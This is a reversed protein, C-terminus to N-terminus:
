SLPWDAEQGDSQFPSGRWPSPRSPWESEPSRGDSFSCTLSGRRGEKVRFSTRPKVGGVGVVSGARSPRHNSAVGEPCLHSCEPYPLCPISPFFFCLVAFLTTLPAARTALPAAFPGRKTAAPAAPAAPTPASARRRAFELFDAAPPPFRRFDVARDPELVLRDPLLVPEFFVLARARVVEFLELVRPLVDEARFVVPRVRLGAFRLLVRFDVEEYFPAAGELALLRGLGPDRPGARRFWPNPNWLWAFL